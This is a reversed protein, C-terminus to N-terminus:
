RWFLYAPRGDHTEERKIEMHEWDYELQRQCVLCMVRTRGALTIPWTIRRHRCGFLWALVVGRM